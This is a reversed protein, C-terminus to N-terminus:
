MAKARQIEARSTSWFGHDLSTFLGGLLGLALVRGSIRGGALRTRRLVFPALALAATSMRFFSTVLGPAQANRVFIPSFCLCVVGGALALYPLVNKNM